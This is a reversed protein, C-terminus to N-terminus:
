RDGGRYNVPRQFTGDGNGLLVSVIGAGAVNNGADAVNNGAVALDVRGDGDFDGAVLATVDDIGAAYNVPRQFTGDGNGLLVSVIGAGAVNNGADAVNNGAVALDVRGDGNFDGAVLASPFTTGAAYNVPRQFTGDGNGLLVSVIGAGAVNNGAVALDVRGDGSFDGAVLATANIGAAYNVPPQFTGDGDGLLVSVGNGAVALDVRGDGNFDGVAITRFAGSIQTNPLNANTLEITMTYDSAGALGEVELYDTGATLHQAILNDRDTSSLGDSQVLLHGQGDLLSLRTHAGEARVQAILLQDTTPDIRFFDLGGPAITGTAMDGTLPQARALEEPTAVIPTGSLLIRRELREFSWHRRPRRQRRPLAGILPSSPRNPGM